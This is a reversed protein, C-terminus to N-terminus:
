SRLNINFPVTPNALRLLPALFQDCTIYVPPNKYALNISKKIEVRDFEHYTGGAITESIDFYSFSSTTLFMEYLCTDDNVFFCDISSDTIIVCNEQDKGGAFSIGITRFDCNLLKISRYAEIYFDNGFSCNRMELRKDLIKLTKESRSVIQLNELLIDKQNKEQKKIIKELEFYTIKEQTVM